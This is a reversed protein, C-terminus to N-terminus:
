VRRDGGQERMFKNYDQRNIGVKGNPSTPFCDLYEDVVLGRCLAACLLAGNSIYSCLGVRHAWREADHKLQYSSITGRKTPRFCGLFAIAAEVQDFRIPMPPKGKAPHRLGYACLQPFRRWPSSGGVEGFSSSTPPRADLFGDGSLVLCRRDDLRRPLGFVAPLENNM